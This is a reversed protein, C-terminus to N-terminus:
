KKYGVKLSMFMTINRGEQSPRKEITAIDELNAQIKKMVEFGLEPHVMERGRFMLTFKVKDGKELFDRAHNVKHEFDHSDISPRMKIEKVHIVKQKKKAEKAKKIQEFKFKSYDTIRAVPPDQNPSIEVLDLEQEKAMEIAKHTDIVQPEGDGVLRVTKSRIEDNTNHHFKDKERVPKRGRTVL